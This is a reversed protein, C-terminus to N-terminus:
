GLYPYTTQLLSAYNSRNDQLTVSPWLSFTRSTKGRPQTHPTYSAPLDTRYDYKVISALCGRDETDKTQVVLVSTHM